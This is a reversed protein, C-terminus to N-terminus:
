TINPVFVGRDAIYVRQETQEIYMVSRANLKPRIILVILTSLVAVMALYFAGDVQTWISHPVCQHTMLCRSTSWQSRDLLRGTDLLHFGVNGYVLTFLVFVLAGYYHGNQRHSLARDYQDRSISEQLPDCQHYLYTVHKVYLKYPLKALYILPVLLQLIAM